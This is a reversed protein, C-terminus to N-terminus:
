KRMWEIIKNKKEDDENERVNFEIIGDHKKKNTSIIDYFPLLIDVPIPIKRFNYFIYLFHFILVSFFFM